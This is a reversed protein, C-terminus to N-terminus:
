VVFPLAGGDDVGSDQFSYNMFLYTGKSIDIKTEMEIGQVWAEGVNEFVSVNPNSESTRLAILDDIHNYFYKSPIFFYEKVFIKFRVPKKITAVM